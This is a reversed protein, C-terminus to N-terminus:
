VLKAESISVEILSTVSTIHLTWVTYCQSLVWKFAISKMLYATSYSQMVCGTSRQISIFIVRISSVFSIRLVMRERKPSRFPIPGLSAEFSMIFEAVKQSYRFETHHLISAAALYPFLAIKQDIIVLSKVGKCTASWPLYQFIYSQDVVLLISTLLFPFYTTQLPVM